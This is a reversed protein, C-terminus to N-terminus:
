GNGEAIPRAACLLHEAAHARRHHRISAHAADTDHDLRQVEDADYVCVYVNEYKPWIYNFRAEYEMLDEAGPLGQELAWEQNSWMRTIRYPGSNAAMHREHLGLMSHLDFRGGIVHAQEWPLLELQGSREAREVDIGAKQLRRLREARQSRDIIKILKDGAEIGETLFPLM